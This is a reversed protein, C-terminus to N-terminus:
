FVERDVVVKNDVSFKGDPKFTVIAFGQNWENFVMYEPLLGSSCGVSWCKSPKKSLNFEIAEDTKHFHGFIVNDHSKMLKNRAPYKGGGAIEHGHIFHLHGIKFFNGSDIRHQINDIFQFGMDNLGTLSPIDFGKRELLNQIKRANLTIYRELRDEHNGKIFIKKKFDIRSLVWDNLQQKGEEIEDELPKRFKDGWKSIEHMDFMDGLCILHDVQEDKAYDIITDICQKDGYPFHADTIVLYKEVGRQLSKQSYGYKKLVRGVYGRAYGTEKRIIRAGKGEKALEIIRKQNDTM